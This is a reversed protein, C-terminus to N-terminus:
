FKVITNSTILHSCVYPVVKSCLLHHGVGKWHAYPEWEYEKDNWSCMSPKLQERYLCICAPFAVYNAPDADPLACFLSSWFLFQNPWSRRYRRHGIFKNIKQYEVLFHINISGLNFGEYLGGILTYTFNGPLDKVITRYSDCYSNQEPKKKNNYNSSFLWCLM